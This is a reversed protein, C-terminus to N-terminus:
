DAPNPQVTERADRRVTVRTARRGLNVLRRYHRLVSVEAQFLGSLHTITRQGSRKHTMQESKLDACSESNIQRFQM